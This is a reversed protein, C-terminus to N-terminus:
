TRDPDGPDVFTEDDPLADITILTTRDCRRCKIEINRGARRALLRGCDCRIESRPESDAPM